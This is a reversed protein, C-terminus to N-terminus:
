INIDIDIYIYINYVYLIYIYLYYLIYIHYIYIYTYIYVYLWICVYTINYLYSSVSQYVKVDEVESMRGGSSYLRNIDIALQPQWSHSFAPSERNPCPFRVLSPRVFRGTGWPRIRTVVSSVAPPKMRTYGSICLSRISYTSVCYLKLSFKYIYIVYKYNNIRIYVYMSFRDM